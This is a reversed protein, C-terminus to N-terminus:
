TITFLNRTIRKLIVVGLNIFLSLIITMGESISPDFPKNRIKASSIRHNALTSLFIQCFDEIDTFIADSYNM